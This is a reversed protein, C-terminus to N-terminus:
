EAATNCVDTTNMRPTKFIKSIAGQSQLRILKAYLRIARHTVDSFTIGFIELAGGINNRVIDPEVENQTVLEEKLDDVEVQLIQCIYKEAM